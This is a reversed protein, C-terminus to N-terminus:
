PSGKKKGHAMSVNQAAALTAADAGIGRLNFEAV